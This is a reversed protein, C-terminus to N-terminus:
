SQPDTVSFFGDAMLWCAAPARGPDGQFARSLGLRVAVQAGMQVLARDLAQLQGALDTAALEARRLLHHDKMPLSREGLGPVDLTARYDPEAGVRQSVDFRVKGAPVVVTALSRQGTGPAVYAASRTPCLPVGFLEEGPRAATAALIARRKEPPALRRCSRLARVWLDELHPPRPETPREGILEFVEWRAHGDLLYASWGVNRAPADQFKALLPRVIRVAGGQEVAGALCYWKGMRTWDLLIMEM